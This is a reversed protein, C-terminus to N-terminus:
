NMKEHFAHNGIQYTEIGARNAMEADSLPVVTSYFFLAGNSFYEKTPDKGSIADEVAKMCEEYEGTHQFDWDYFGNISAFAGPYTIVDMVSGNSAGFLKNGTELRNLVVAAVAVKGDYPEGRSEKWVVKGIGLKEEETFNWKSSPESGESETEKETEKEPEKVVVRKTGSKEPVVDEKDAAAEAFTTVPLMETEVRSMSEKTDQDVKVVADGPNGVITGGVLVCAFAFVLVCAM